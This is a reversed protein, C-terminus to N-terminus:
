LNSMLVQSLLLVFVRHLITGLLPVGNEGPRGHGGRGGGPDAGAAQTCGQHNTSIPVDM